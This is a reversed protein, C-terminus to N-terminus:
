ITGMAEMAAATVAEMAVEVEEETAVEAETTAAEATPPFTAVVVEAM